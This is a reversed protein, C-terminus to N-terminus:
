TIRRTEIVMLHNFYRARMSRQVLRLVIIGAMGIFGLLILAAFVRATKNEASATAVVYGLGKSGGMYEGLVAGIVALPLAIRLSAFIGPVASPLRVYWFIELNNAGQARLFNVLEKPTNSLATLSGLAIPLTALLSSMFVKPMLGFGLWVVLLPAIAEKPFAQLAALYPELLWRLPQIISLSVGVGLGVIVAIASGFFVELLTILAHPILYSFWNLFESFVAWPPPLLYKPISFLVCVGAWVCLGM